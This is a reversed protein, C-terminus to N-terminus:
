GAVREPLDDKLMPRRKVPLRAINDGLQEFAPTETAAIRWRAWIRQMLPTAHPAEPADRFSYQIAFLGQRCNITRCGCTMHWAPDCETTSYDIVVEEGAEIDRLALVQRRQGLSANPACSHNIKDLPHHAEIWTEPGIGIWNPDTRAPKVHLKGSLRSLVSGAAFHRAAFLGIGEIPSEDVYLRRGFAFLLGGGARRLSLLAVSGHLAANLVPYLLLSPHAGRDAVFTTIGLLLYASTWVIWPGPKERYPARWTSRVIPIFCTIATLNTVILFPAVFSDATAFGLSAGLGLAFWAYAITLWLDTSFAFGEFRDIPETAGKRLCMAAVVIGLVACIVPLLLVPWTANNRWELFALLSTGYSFMLFSAANPRIRETMFNRIYMAYGAIQLAAAVVGLAGLVM